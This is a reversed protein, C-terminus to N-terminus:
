GRQGEAEIWLGVVALHRSLDVMNRAMGDVAIPDGLAPLGEAHAYVLAEQASRLAELDLGGAAEAGSSSAAPLRLRRRLRARVSRHREHDALLSVVLPRAAPLARALARLRADVGAELRDVAEFVEAASAYETAEARAALVCAGM